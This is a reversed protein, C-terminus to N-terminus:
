KVQEQTLTEKSLHRGHRLLSAATVRSGYAGALRLLFQPLGVLKCIRRMCLRRLFSEAGWQCLGARAADEYRSLLYWPASAAAHKLESKGGFCQVLKDAREWARQADVAARGISTSLSHYPVFGDRLVLYGSQNRDDVGPVVLLGQCNRADAPFLAMTVFGAETVVVDGASHVVLKTGLREFITDIPIASFSRGVDHRQKQMRSANRRALRIRLKLPLYM